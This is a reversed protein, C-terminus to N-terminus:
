LNMLTSKLHRRFTPGDTPKSFIDAINETGATHCIDVIRAAVAERIWHYAIANHKKKLMNSPLTKSLVVSQNNCFVQSVDEIPLGMMRLKYRFEIIIEVAIRLAVLEAGYTSTKVMNQRKSYWKIPMNNIFLIIRTVLRRTVQDHDHVEDVYATIKIGKGRPTPMDSPLEEQAGPYQEKWNVIMKESKPLLRECIDILIGLKAHNKLYGFVRLMRRLHEQKPAASFRAMTQVDYM